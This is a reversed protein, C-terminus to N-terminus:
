RVTGTRGQGAAAGGEGRRLPCGTGVREALEARLAALEAMRADIIGIKEAFLASLAAATDPAERLEEGHRAIEALSFGLAQATRVYQLWAVTEESFDRYGNGLRRARVLGVKEYFRIADRSVGAREALEGIRM